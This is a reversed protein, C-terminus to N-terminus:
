SGFIWSNWDGHTTLLYHGSKSERLEGCCPFIMSDLNGCADHDLQLSNDISSLLNNSSHGCRLHPLCPLLFCSDQLTAKSIGGKRTMTRELSYLRCHFKESITISFTIAIVAETLIYQPSSEYFLAELGASSWFTEFSSRNLIM